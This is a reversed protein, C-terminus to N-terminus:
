RISAQYRYCGATKGSNDTVLLIYTAAQPAVFAIRADKGGGSDNDYFTTTKINNAGPVGMTAVVVAAVPDFENKSYSEVNIEVNLGSPIWGLDHVGFAGDSMDPCYLGAAPGLVAQPKVASPRLTDGGRTAAWDHQSAVATAVSVGCALLVVTGIKGLMGIRRM